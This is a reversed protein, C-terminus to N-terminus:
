QKPFHEPFQRVIRTALADALEASLRFSQGYKASDPTRQGSGQLDIEASVSAAYRKLIGALRANKRIRNGSNVLAAIQDAKGNIRGTVAATDGKSKAADIYDSTLMIYQKFLGALQAGNQPGYYAEFIKGISDSTEALQALPKEPSGPGYIVVGTLVRQRNLCQSLLKKMATRLEIEKATYAAGRSTTEGFVPLNLACFMSCFMVAVAILKKM